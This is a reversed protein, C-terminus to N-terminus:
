QNRSYQPFLLTNFARTCADYAGEKDDLSIFKQALRIEDLARAVDTAKTHIPFTGAETRYSTM